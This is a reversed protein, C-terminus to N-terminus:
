GRDATWLKIQQELYTQTAKFASINRDMAAYTSLLQNFYKASRRELVARDDAIDRATTSLTRNATTFAGNAARLDDRIAQLAGGLGAEVTVTAAGPAGSRLSIILGVARSGAPAILDAGSPTMATGDILGAPAVTGNQPVLGSLAYTGPAVRGSVSRVAVRSNDSFMAPNFLAEVADPSAALAAALQPTTVSLTGDRNTRVGIEALTHPGAGQVTLAMTPLAALRRKLQELGTNGRLIGSNEDNGVTGLRRATTNLANYADVFDRVAQDIEATARRTGISIIAGVTARKLDIQVGPIVDNFSNTPRAVAVNDIAVLADQASQAQTMGAPTGSTAANYAFREIGGTGGAGPGGGATVALTFTQAAGTAGKIILRSGGADTLISAKVGADADVGGIGGGAANIAAALGDVSDNGADITIAFNGRATTLSLTGTGISASRDAVSTSQAVEAQALQRVELNASLAGLRAGKTATASFAAPDSVTPQSALSGGAILSTMAAAFSDIGGTLEALGSIKATNTTERRAIQAEKPAKAAAALGDVISRINLGSGAGLASSIASTDMAM